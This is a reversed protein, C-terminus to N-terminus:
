YIVVLCDIGHYQWPATWNDGNEKDTYQMLGFSHCGPFNVAIAEHCEGRIEYKVSWSHWLGWLVTFAGAAPSLCFWLLWDSFPQHWCLATFDSHSSHLELIFFPGMILGIGPSKSCGCYRSLRGWIEHAQSYLILTGCCWSFCLLGYRFPRSKMWGPVDRKKSLGFRGGLLGFLQGRGCYRNCYGKTGKIVSIILPIFFCLLGLWAFLINFFGLVLYIVSLIWLYDYWKKKATKMRGGGPDWHSIRPMRKRMKRLRCMQGYWCGGKDRQLDIYCGAPVGECLM